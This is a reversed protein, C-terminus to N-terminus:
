AARSTAGTQRTERVAERIREFPEALDVSADLRELLADIAAGDAAHEKLMSIPLTCRAHALTIAGPADGICVAPIGVRDRVPLVSPVDTIVLLPRVGTKEILTKGILDAFLYDHLTAGYLIQQVRNPQVPATLRFEQPRGWANTVLYGGTFGAEDQLVTLFGLSLEPPSDIVNRIGGHHAHLRGALSTADMPFGGRGSFARRVSM